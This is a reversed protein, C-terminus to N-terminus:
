LEEGEATLDLISGFKQEGDFYTDKMSEEGQM